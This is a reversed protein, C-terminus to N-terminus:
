YIVLMNTCTIRRHKTEMNLGFMMDTVLSLWLSLHPGYSVTPWQLGHSRIWRLKRCFYQIILPFPDSHTSYFDQRRFIFHWLISPCHQFMNKNYKTRGYCCKRKSSLCVLCNLVFGTMHSENFSCLWFQPKENRKNFSLNYSMQHLEEYGICSHFSPNVKSGWVVPFKGRILILGLQSVGCCWVCPRWWVQVSRRREGMHFVSSISRQVHKNWKKQIKKKKTTLFSVTSCMQVVLWVM